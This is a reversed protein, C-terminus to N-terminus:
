INRCPARYKQKSLFLLYNNDGQYRGVKDWYFKKYELDWKFKKAWHSITKISIRSAKSIYKLKYGDLYMRRVLIKIEPYPVSKKNLDVENEKKRRGEDYYYTKSIIRGDKAKKFVKPFEENPDIGQSIRLEQSKKKDIIWVTIIDLDCNPCSLSSRGLHSDWWYHCNKRKCRPCTVNFDDVSSM